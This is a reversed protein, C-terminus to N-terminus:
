RYIPLSESGMGLILRNRLVVGKSVEWNAMAINLLRLSPDALTSDNKKLTMDVESLIAFGNKLPSYSATRFAAVGELYDINISDMFLNNQLRNSANTFSWLDQDVPIESQTARVFKGKVKLYSFDFGFGAEFGTEDWRDFV